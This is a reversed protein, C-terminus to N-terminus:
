EQKRISCTIGRAGRQRPRASEDPLRLYKKRTWPNIQWQFSLKHNPNFKYDAALNVKMNNLRNLNQPDKRDRELQIESYDSMPYDTSRYENSGSKSWEWNALATVTLKNFMYTGDLYTFNKAFDNGKGM